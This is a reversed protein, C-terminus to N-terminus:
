PVGGGAAEYAALAAAFAAAAATDAEQAAQLDAAALGLATAAAQINAQNGSAQALGFATLAMLYAANAAELGALTNGRTMAAATLANYLDALTQQTDAKPPKKPAM